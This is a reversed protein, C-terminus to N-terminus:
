NGHKETKNNYICSNIPSIVSAPETSDILGTPVQIPDKLGTGNVSCSRRITPAISNSWQAKTIEMRQMEPCKIPCHFLHSYALHMTTLLGMHAHGFSHGGVVRHITNRTDPIAPNRCLFVILLRHGAKIKFQNHNPNEIKSPVSSLPNTFLSFSYVSSM